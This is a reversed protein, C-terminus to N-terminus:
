WSIVGWPTVGLDRGVLDRWDIRTSEHDLRRWLRGSTLATPGRSPGHERPRARAAVRCPENSGYHRFESRCTVCSTRTGQATRCTTSATAAASATLFSSCPPSCFSLPHAARTHAPEFTSQPRQRGTPCRPCTACIGAACCASTLLLQLLVGFHTINRFEYVHQSPQM